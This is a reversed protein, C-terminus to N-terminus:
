PCSASLSEPLNVVQSAMKPVCKGARSSHNVLQIPSPNINVKSTVREREHTMVSTLRTCIGNILHLTENAAEDNRKWLDQEGNLLLPKNMSECILATRRKQLLQSLFSFQANATLTSGNKDCRNRKCFFIIFARHSQHSSLLTGM